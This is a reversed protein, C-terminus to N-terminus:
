TVMQRETVFKSRDFCVSLAIAIQFSFSAASLRDYVCFYNYYLVYIGEDAFSFDFHLYIVPRAICGGWNGSLWIWM